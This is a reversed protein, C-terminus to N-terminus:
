KAQKDNRANKKIGGLILDLKELASTDTVEQKDKWKEPQRNKLWFIQASVSPQVYRESELTVVEGDKGLVQKKETVHYGLASRYMANEIEYDAVEKGDKIANSFELSDNKWKYFTSLCIGINHAMQENTLGDRAWGRLLTLSKKTTWNKVSKLRPM